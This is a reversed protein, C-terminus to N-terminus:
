KYRVSVRGCEKCHRRKGSSLIGDKEWATWRHHHIPKHKKSRRGISREIQVPGRHKEWNMKTM